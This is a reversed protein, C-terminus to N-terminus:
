QFDLLKEKFVVEQNDSLKQLQIHVEKSLQTFTNIIFELHQIQTSTFNGQNNYLFNNLVGAIFSQPSNYKKFNTSFPLQKNSTVYWKVFEKLDSDRTISLENM